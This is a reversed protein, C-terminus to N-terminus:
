AHALSYSRNFLMLNTFPSGVFLGDFFSNLLDFICPIRRHFRHFLLYALDRKRGEAKSCNFSVEGSGICTSDSVILRFGSSVGGSAEGGAFFALASSVLFGEENELKNFFTETGAVSLAFGALFATVLANFLAVNVIAVVDDRFSVDTGVVPRGEIALAEATSPTDPGPLDWTLSYSFGFPILSSM